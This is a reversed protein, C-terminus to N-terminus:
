VIEKVIRYKKKFFRKVRVKFLEWKLRRISPIWLDYGLPTNFGGQLILHDELPVSPTTEDLITKPLFKNLVFFIIGTLLYKKEKKNLEDIKM